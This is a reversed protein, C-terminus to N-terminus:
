RKTNKTSKLVIKVFSYFSYAGAVLGVVLGIVVVIDGWGTKNKIYIAVFVCLVIPTVISLGLQTVYSLWKATNLLFKNDM